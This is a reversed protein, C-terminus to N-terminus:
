YSILTRIDIGKLKDRGDLYTLEIMFAAGVVEGGLQQILNVTAEVTGGTALLDDVILVKQGPKIADKHMTLTDKGYELGYDATIVERPLKGPKRVPAFGVELAYAVPCGIIFGRAEPGVIVEAGVEKAYKVIEDVAYKYAPGNDMITTIDKFRIGEKPWDEVITVYQKLDM